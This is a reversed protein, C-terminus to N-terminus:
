KYIINRIDFLKLKKNEQKKLSNTSFIKKVNKAKELRKNYKNNEIHGSLIYIDKIGKKSLYKVINVITDGTSIIDDVIM